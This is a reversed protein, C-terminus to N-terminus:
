GEKRATNKTQRTEENLLEFLTEMRRGAEGVLDTLLFCLSRASDLYSEKGTLQPPDLDAILLMDWVASNVTQAYCLFQSVDEAARNVEHEPSYDISGQGFYEPEKGPPLAQRCTVCRLASPPPPLHPCSDKHAM